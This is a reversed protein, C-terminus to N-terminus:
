TVAVLGVEARGVENKLSFDTGRHADAAPSCLYAIAKAVWHPPIHASPDLQSVPNIPLTGARPTLTPGPATM